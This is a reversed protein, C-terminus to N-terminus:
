KSDLSLLTRDQDEILDWKSEKIIRIKNLHKLIDRGLENKVLEKKVRIFVQWKQLLTNKHFVSM